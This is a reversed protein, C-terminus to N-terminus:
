KPMRTELWADLYKMCRHLCARTEPVDHIILRMDKELKRSEPNNKKGWFNIEIDHILRGLEVAEKAEITYRNLIAEYTSQRHTRRLQAVPLDFATGEAPLENEGIFHFEAEPDVYHMILWASACRDVEMGQGTVWLDAGAPLALFVFFLLCTLPAVQLRGVLSHM